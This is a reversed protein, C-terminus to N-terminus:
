AQRRRAGVFWMALGFLALVVWTSGGTAASCGVQGTAQLPDSASDGSTLHNHSSGHHDGDDDDDDDHGHDDDDDDNGKCKGDHDGGQNHGPVPPVPGCVETLVLRALTKKKHQDGQVIHLKVSNALVWDGPDLDKGDGLCKEFKYNAAKALDSSSKPHANKSGGKYKCTIEQTGRKFVLTAQKNAANGEVVPILAPLAFRM